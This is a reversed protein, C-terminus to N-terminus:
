RALPCCVCSCSANLVHMVLVPPYLASPASGLYVDEPCCAHGDRASIGDAVMQRAAANGTSNTYAGVRLKPGITNARRM